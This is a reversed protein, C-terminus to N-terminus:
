GALLSLTPLQISELDLFAWYSSVLCWSNNGDGAPFYTVWERVKKKGSSSSSGSSSKKRAPWFIVLWSSEVLINCSCNRLPHCIKQSFALSCPQLMKSFASRKKHKKKEKKKPKESRDILLEERCSSLWLGAVSLFSSTSLLDASNMYSGVGTAITLYFMNFSRNIRHEVYWSASSKTLAMTSLGWRVAAKKAPLKLRRKEKKQDQRQGQRQLWHRSALCSLAFMQYITAM